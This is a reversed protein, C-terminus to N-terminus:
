FLFELTELIFILLENTKKKKGPKRSSAKAATVREPHTTGAWVHAKNPM